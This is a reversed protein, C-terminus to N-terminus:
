PYGEIMNKSQLRDPSEIVQELIYFLFVFFIWRNYIFIVTIGSINYFASVCKAILINNVLFNYLVFKCVHEFTKM